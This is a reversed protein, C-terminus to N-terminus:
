RLSAALTTLEPLGATGTVVVATPGPPAVLTLRGNAGKVQQWTAAGIHVPPLAQPKRGAVSTVLAASTGNSQETAAYQNSPTLYGLHFRFPKGHGGAASVSTPRWTSPLGQPALLPVTSARRGESLVPKYDVVTVHQKTHHPILVWLPVIVVLVAALSLVMDSIVETGRKKTAVGVM